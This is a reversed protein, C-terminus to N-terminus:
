GNADREGDPSRGGLDTTIGTSAEGVARLVVTARQPIRLGDWGRGHPGPPVLDKSFRRALDDSEDVRPQKRPIPTPKALHRAMERVLAATDDPGARDACVAPDLLRPDQQRSAAAWACRRRHTRKRPDEIRVGVIETAGLDRM